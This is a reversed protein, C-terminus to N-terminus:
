AIRYEFMLYQFNFLLVMQCILKDPGKFLSIVETYLGPRLLQHHLLLHRVQRGGQRVGGHHARVEPGVPDRVAPLVHAGAHLPVLTSYCM